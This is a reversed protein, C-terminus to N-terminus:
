NCRAGGIVRLRITLGLAEVLAEFSVQTTINMGPRGLPTM